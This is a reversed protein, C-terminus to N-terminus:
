DRALELWEAGGEAVPAEFRLERNKTTEFGRRSNTRDRM